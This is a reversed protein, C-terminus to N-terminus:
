SKRLTSGSVLFNLASVTKPNKEPGVLNPPKENIPNMTKEGCNGKLNRLDKENIRSSLNKRRISLNKKGGTVYRNCSNICSCRNNYTQCLKCKLFFAITIIHCIVLNNRFVACLKILENKKKM